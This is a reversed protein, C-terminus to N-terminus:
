RYAGEQGDRSVLYLVAQVVHIYLATPKPMLTLPFLPLVM